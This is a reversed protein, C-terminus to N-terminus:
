VQVEHHQRALAAVDVKAYVEGPGPSLHVKAAQVEAASIFLHIKADQHMMARRSAVGGLKEVAKGSSRGLNSEVANDDDGRISLVGLSILFIV